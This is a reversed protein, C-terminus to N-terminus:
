MTQDHSVVLDIVQHKIIHEEWAGIVIFSRASWGLPGRHFHSMWLGTQGDIMHQLINCRPM